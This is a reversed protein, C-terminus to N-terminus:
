EQQARRSMTRAIVILVAAGVFAVLLLQVTRWFLHDITKDLQELTDLRLADIRGLSRETETELDAFASRRLEEIAALVTEREGQLLELTETRQGDVSALVISRERAIAELLLAREAGVLEPTALFFRTLEEVDTEVSVFRQEISDLDDFVESLLARRAEIVLLEAQRRAERPLREAYITLQDSLDRATEDLNALSRLGGSGWAAAAIAAAGLGKPQLGITSDRIPNDRVWEAFEPAAQQRKEPGVIRDALAVVEAELGRLADIAV